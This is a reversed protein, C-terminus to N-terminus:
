ARDEEEELAAHVDVAEVPELGHGASAALGARAELRRM